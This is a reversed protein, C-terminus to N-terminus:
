EKQEVLVVAVFVVVVVVMARVVVVIVAGAVTGLDEHTQALTGFATALVRRTEQGGGM